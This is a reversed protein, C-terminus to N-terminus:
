GDYVTYAVPAAQQPLAVTQVGVDGIIQLQLISFTQMITFAVLSTLGRPVAAVNSCMVQAGIVVRKTSV